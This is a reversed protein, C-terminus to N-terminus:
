RCNFDPANSESQQLEGLDVYWQQGWGNIFIGVETAPVGADPVVAVGLNQWNLKENV